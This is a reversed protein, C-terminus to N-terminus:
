MEGGTIPSTASAELKCTANRIVDANRSPPPRSHTHPARWRSRSVAAAPSAGAAGGSGPVSPPYIAARSLPRVPGARYLHQPTIAPQLRRVRPPVTGAHRRTARRHLHHQGPVAVGSRSGFVGSAVRLGPLGRLVVRGADAIAGGAAVRVDPAPGPRAAIE